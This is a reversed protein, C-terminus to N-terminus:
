LMDKLNICKSFKFLNDFDDLYDLAEALKLLSQFSIEGTQEFRKISGFSVSSREALVKQSVKLEKRRKKFNEVINFTVSQSTKINVFDSVDLRKNM